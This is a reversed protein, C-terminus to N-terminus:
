NDKPTIGRMGILPDISEEEILKATLRDPRSAQPLNAAQNTVTKDSERNQQGLFEIVEAKPVNAFLDIDEDDSVPEPAQYLDPQQWVKLLRDVLMTHRALPPQQICDQFAEPQGLLLLFNTARTVGTYLLNRQYMMRYNALMLLIVVKFQSGQSKHITVCYALQLNTLEKRNYNVENDNNFRVTVKLPKKIKAKPANDGGEIASIVGMDGNYVNNNPDNVTQIVKDGKRFITEGFKVEQRDPSAPNLHEQLNRNQQDIGAIGKHMPILVQVDMLDCGPQSLGWDMLQNIFRGANQADTPIFSRDPLAQKFLDAPVQGDNISKSLPIITSKADQRHIQTLRVQPLEAFSLLDRFVQGPGVSPLQDQDGVLVVHMTQPIAAVLTKFLLTDVMSMEDIILLSGKLRSATMKSPTEQGTLGLLHHITSAPMKTAAAMQQAARGTPAALITEEDDVGHLQAFSNVIGRIITTKGTGPGGTLLLVKSELAMKIAKKQQQDYEIQAAKEATQVAKEVRRKDVKAETFLIRHLHQAILWEANYLFSPYIHQADEAQLQHSKILEALENEFLGADSVNGLQRMAQTILTKQSVYTAGQNMTEQNLVERLAASLRRSDDPAIGLVSAAFDARGFGIRDIDLVLQYPNEKVIKMTDAGYKNIIRESLRDKFGLKALWDVLEDNMQHEDHRANFYDLVLKRDAESTIKIKELRKPDAVIKEVAKKGLKKFLRHSIEEADTVAIGAQNLTGALEDETQPLAIQCGTAEFQRGYNANDVLRGTFEYMQHKKLDGLPGKVTIEEESWPFSAEDVDIVCIRFARPGDEKAFKIFHVTGRLREKATATKSKVM